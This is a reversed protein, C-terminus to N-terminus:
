EIVMYAPQRSTIALNTARLDPPFVVSKIGWVTAQVISPDSQAGIFMPQAVFGDGQGFREPGRKVDDAGTQVSEVLSPCRVGPGCGATM